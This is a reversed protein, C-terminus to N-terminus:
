KKKKPSSDSSSFGKRTMAGWGKKKRFAQWTGEMRWLNNLQRYGFNEVIAALFYMPVDRIRAKQFVTFEAIMMSGMSLFLGFLFVVSLYALFFSFSLIGLLAFIPILILGLFELIPSVIDFLFQLPLAVTGVRGYKPNLLMKRHRFLTEVMGRQWRTRQRRLIKLDEPVETWCVPDPIFNVRYESGTDHFHHHLHVILEMDEGVTDLNYGGVQIIAQRNFVGFAGSIITVIGLHSWGLRALLFSRFYEVAQFLALWGGPAREQRISGKYVESNNAVRVTGGVALMRNPDEFFPRVARLLSGSDLISDADVACVLPYRALAIGANLADAKGGNDKDVFVLNPIDGNAYIGQIKQHPLIQRKARERPQLEFSEIVRHATDDKSGDNVVVLEFSPFHLTLLSHINDVITAEENYAPVIISIAPISEVQFLRDESFRIRSRRSKWFEFIAFYSLTFYYLHQAIGMFLIAFSLGVLVNVLVPQGVLWDALSQLSELM